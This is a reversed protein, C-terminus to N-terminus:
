FRFYIFPNYTGSSINLISITFIMILLLLEFINVIKEEFVMKTIKPYLVQVIGSLLIGIIGLTVTEIDWFMKLNYINSGAKFVFMKSIYKLAYSLNNARFFVWGLMFVIVVYVHSIFKSKKLINKLKLREIVIFFGHFLGWVIFNWSAGHWIGTAFFVIILNIYTRKQGKKSGGLPIYLYEKFWTSLSIHWRRWFDQISISTYPYNFNELFKFGFMRGLGIAMDSYGSFDFYIQLTYCIIGSWAVFTGMQDIQIAFINDAIKAMSNAIIVKKGLGYIFRKIGYSRDIISISRDKIQNEVDHYKVIPGAILQPFLSIYLALSFINKQSTDRGLIKDRYVDVIYSMIQFTYFSIGIPLIIEKAFFVNGKFIFNINEVFFNFYKFYGLIGLNIIIGFILNSKANYISNSKGINIGVIYNIIVSIVMLIVYKPEGWSYFVISALLLIINKLKLDSIYYLILTIPLFAWLFLMSSFVM